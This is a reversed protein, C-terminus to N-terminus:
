SKSYSNVNFSLHVNELECMQFAVDYRNKVAEAFENYKEESLSKQWTFQYHFLEDKERDIPNMAMGKQTTQANAQAALNLLLVELIKQERENYDNGESNVLVNVMAVNIFI